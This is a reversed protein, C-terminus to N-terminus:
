RTRWATWRPTPKADTSAAFRTYLANYVNQRVERSGEGHKTEDKMADLAAMIERNKAMAGVFHAGARARTLMNQVMDMDASAVGKRRLEAKRVSQDGM